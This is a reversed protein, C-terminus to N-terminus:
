KKEEEKKEEEEEIQPEIPLEDPQKVCYVETKGAEPDIQFTCRNNKDDLIMPFIATKSKLKEFEPTGEEIIRFYKGLGYADILSKVEECFPCDKLVLVKYKKEESM